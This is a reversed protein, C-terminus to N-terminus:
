SGEIAIAFEPCYRECNYCLICKSEDTVQVVNYGKSNIKNGLKLINVPCFEVCIRCGKCYEEEIFIRAM